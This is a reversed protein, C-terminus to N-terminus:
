RSRREVLRALAVTALFGVLTATLVLDLLAPIRLRAALVAVAAIFVFFGFDLAAARDADTPGVVLRVIAALMAAALVGLVLDLGTM